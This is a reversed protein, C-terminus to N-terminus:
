PKLSGDAKAIAAEAPICLRCATDSGCTCYLTGDMLGRVIALLEPAASLMHGVACTVTHDLNPASEVIAVLWGNADYISGTPGTPVDRAPVFEYPGESYSSM